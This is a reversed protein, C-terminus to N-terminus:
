KKEETNNLKTNGDEIEKGTYEFKGILRTIKIFGLATLRELNAKRSVPSSYMANLDDFTIYGKEKALKILEKQNQTLRYKM